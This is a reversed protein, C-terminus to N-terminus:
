SMKEGICVLSFCLILRGRNVALRRVHTKKKKTHKKDKALTPPPPSPDPPSQPPSFCSCILQHGTFIAFRPLSWDVGVVLWLQLWLADLFTFPNCSFRYTEKNKLWALLLPEMITGPISKEGTQRHEILCHGSWVIALCLFCTVNALERM